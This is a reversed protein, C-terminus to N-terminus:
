RSSGVLTNRAVRFASTNREATPAGYDQQRFYLLINM